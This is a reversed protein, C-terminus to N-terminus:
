EKGEVAAMLFERVAIFERNRYASAAYIRPDNLNHRNAVIYDQCGQETFCATVFRWRTVYGVRQWSGTDELSDELAELEVKKEDGAQVWDNDADHWDFEDTHDEGVGCIVEREQVIFLPHETARNNQTNLLEGIRQMQDSM